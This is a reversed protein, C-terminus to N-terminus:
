WDNYAAVYVTSKVTHLTHGDAIDGLKQSVCNTLCTTLRRHRTCHHVCKKKYLFIVNLASNYVEPSAVFINQERDLSTLNPQGAIFLKCLYHIVGFVGFLAM